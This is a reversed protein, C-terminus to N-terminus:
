ILHRAEVLAEMFSVAQVVAWTPGTPWRSRDTEGSNPRVRRLWAVDVEAPCDTTPTAMSPCGVVYGFLDQQHELMQWPDDFLAVQADSPGWSECPTRVCGPRM